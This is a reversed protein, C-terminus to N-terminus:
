KCVEDPMSRNTQSMIQKKATYICCCVLGGSSPTFCAVVFSVRQRGGCIYTGEDNTIGTYGCGYSIVEYM